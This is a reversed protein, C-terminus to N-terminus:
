FGNKLRGDVQLLTSAYKIRLRGDDLIVWLEQTTDFLLGRNFYMFLQLCLLTDKSVLLVVYTSNLGDPVVAILFKPTQMPVCCM